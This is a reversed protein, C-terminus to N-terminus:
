VPNIVSFDLRANSPPLNAAGSCYINFGHFFKEIVNCITAATNVDSGADVNIVINSAETVDDWNTM